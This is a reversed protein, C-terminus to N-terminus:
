SLAILRSDFVFGDNGTAARLADLSTRAYVRQLWRDSLVADRAHLCRLNNFMLLTGPKIVVSKAIPQKLVSGFTELATKAENDLAQINGLNGTVEDYGQQNTTIFPQPKTVISNGNYDFSDPNKMRYRPQRLIRDCEPSHRQLKEMVDAVDAIWTKTEAPNRLGLLLLFEPRFERLLHGNDAHWDFPVRGANSQTHSFGPIPVIEHILKGLKEQKFSLPQLGAIHLMALLTIESVWGKDAPHKGDLPTAPLEDDIPLKEIVAYPRGYQTVKRLEKELPKLYVALQRATEWLDPFPQDPDPNVATAAKLFLFSNTEAVSIASPHHLSIM